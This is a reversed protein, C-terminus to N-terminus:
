EEDMFAMARLERMAVSYATGYGDKFTSNYRSCNHEHCERELAGKVSKYAHEMCWKFVLESREFGITGFADMVLGEDIRDM